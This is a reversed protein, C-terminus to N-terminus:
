IPDLVDPNGYEAQFRNRWEEMLTDRQVKVEILKPRVIAPGCGGIFAAIRDVETQPNAAVDEYFVALPQIGTRAFFLSWRARDKIAKELLAHILGPEYVEPSSLPVTSRYQGTQVVRAWSLAQGLTDRRELSIFSLGPLLKTWACARAFVDHQDPFVKLGYVGNPTSGMTLIRRFQEAPDDPYTPDDHVRRGPGNFYERPKGLVGTSSLLECLFNSGTRPITCITYGRIILEGYHRLRLM